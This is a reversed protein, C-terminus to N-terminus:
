TFTTMFFFLVSHELSGTSGRFKLQSRRKRWVWALSTRLKRYLSSGASSTSMMMRQSFKIVMLQTGMGSLSDNWFISSLLPLVPELNFILVFIWRDLQSYIDNYHSGHPFSDLASSDTLLYGVYRGSCTGATLSIWLWGDLFHLRNSAGCPSRRTLGPWRFQSCWMLRLVTCIGRRRSSLCFTASYGKGETLM